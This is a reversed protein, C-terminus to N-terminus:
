FTPDTKTVVTPRTGFRPTAKVPAAPTTKLVPPAAPAVEEKKEVVPAPPTAVTQPSPNAAAATRKFGVPGAPKTVPPQVTQGDNEIDAGEDSIMFNKTIAYKFSATIAKSAGKDSSDYGSGVSSITYTEGSEVDTFVHNTEVTTVFETKKDGEKKQIDVFKSSTSMIIKHKILQEKLAAMVDVERMYHYQQHKNYGKKPVSDMHELIELLKGALKKKEM